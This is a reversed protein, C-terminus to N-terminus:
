PMPRALDSTRKVQRAQTFCLLKDTTEKWIQHLCFLRLGSFKLHLGKAVSSKPPTRIALHPFLSSIHNLATQVVRLLAGLTPRQFLCNPARMTCNLSGDVQCPFEFDPDLTLAFVFEVDNLVRVRGPFHAAACLWDIIAVLFPGPVPAPDHLCQVRWNLPLNDDWDWPIWLMEEEDDSSVELAVVRSDTTDHQLDAVLFYFQRLQRIRRSWEDISNRLSKLRDWVVTPRQHNIWVALRDVLGNWHILWDEFADEAQEHSIHSPVWRILTCAGARDQLADQILRWLEYNATGAPIHDFKMVHNALDVTSLSDSWLCLALDTHAGWRLASLLATAEARDISQTIGPLHGASVVLGRTADIVGWSALQLQKHQEVTCSGDLFLHHCGFKPPQFCFSASTDPLQYLLHRWEVLKPLRPALLHNVTCRPLAANDALWGPIGLRLTQFRPCQLWHERDDDIGCLACVSIKEEDYKAHEAVSIFAGSHLASLRARDIPLMSSADLLTLDKDIGNLGQMTKHHVQSAVYQLWADQMLTQLSKNDIEIMNWRHGEHDIVCPPEQVAWGIGSLCHILRALPGPLQRGDYRQHWFHWMHMLESSKRLLRRFTNICLQLQYYGPDNAMDNSLSLRLLPNSGAGSVKLAKVALRRLEVAYNDSILCNTSGHMAQPWFVKPLVAYKQLQPAPSKKLQDWRPKLKAGRARLTRNRRAYAMAGGLENADSMCDFGLQSLIARSTKTLGWVYTKEDDPQLGFLQWITRLAFFGQAVAVAERAALTLNDVFSYTCVAPCFIRMYVHYSWDVVLMAVISLPCGEPFGSSSALEVGLCGHVDFRRVFIALFKKWANMVQWPLGVHEGVMFVQARGIHNFARKLDTSLRSFDLGLQMMLEIQAQLILWVETTERGPLFGLAEPPIFKAMQQILQRTRLRAWARYLISFLTIPRFHAEEHAGDVKALGLVTGFTLQQPWPTQDTEISHMLDLFSDVYSSAMNVLDEKAFGDPGRAAGVKFKKVTQRWQERTIPQWTFQHQDMHIQAFQVIRQWDVAPVEALANWRPQWHAEFARLIDNSDSLFLRQTLEDGPEFREPASVTCIDGAVQSVQVMCNHHLWVSDHQMQVDKDLQIQQSELDVALITYFCSKWLQDVGPKPEKRLDMYIADLAGQYKTKLSAARQQLHWAEFSRFHGHFSEFLAQVTAPDQPVALPLVQLVGDVEHAQREWWTPFDPAFGAAQRIAQWLEIRYTVAAHTLKNAFVAHKLSQMRRLQRFSARTAAGVMSNMLKVEGERSTKCTPTSQPQQDPQLRRARGLCRSPMRSGTCSALQKNIDQEYNNAWAKMFETPNDGANFSVSCEPEWDDFSMDNWPVKAPRPWRQVYVQCEPIQLNIAVTSHEMFDDTVWVGRLLQVAEPSLWIQDAETAGKCTPTVLHNFTEAALHQANQWGHRMWIQQQILAGHEQNFDGMILRVGSMGMVVETTYTELLQDSLHKARAWTPGTAYGYFTGITIPLTSAWHRTLMVRGSLWHEQPWPVDLPVAPVDSLTAVGTWKGAWQSGQRLPAPSGGHFRIERNLTRAGKRLIGSCTKFTQNSLQTEALSWIGPGLGPNPGPHRAEGFRHAGATPSTSSSIARSDGYLFSFGHPEPVNCSDDGSGFDWDATAAPSILFRRAFPHGHQLAQVPSFLVTIWLLFWPM